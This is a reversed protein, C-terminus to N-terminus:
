AIRKHHSEHEGRDFLEVQDALNLRTVRRFAEEGLVVELVEKLGARTARMSYEILQPV